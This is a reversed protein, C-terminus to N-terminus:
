ASIRWRTSARRRGPESTSASSARSQWSNTVRIRDSAPRYIDTGNAPSRSIEIRREQASCTCVASSLELGICGCHMPGPIWRAVHRCHADASVRQNFSNPTVVFVFSPSCSRNVIAQSRGGSSSKRAPTAGSFGKLYSAASGVDGRQVPHPFSREPDVFTSSFVPRSVKKV